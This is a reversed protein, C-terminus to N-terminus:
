QELTMICQCHFAELSWVVDLVIEANGLAAFRQVRKEGVQRLVHVILGAQDDGLAIKDGDMTANAAPCVLGLGHDVERPNLIALEGLM